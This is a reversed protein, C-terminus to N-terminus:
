VQALEHRFRPYTWLVAAAGLLVGTMIRMWFNFSGVEDAASRFVLGPLLDDAMQWVGDVLMPAACWLLARTPLAARWRIAGYLLGTPAVATYLATCRHCYCVQYGEVFFSREPLQHCAASYLSFILRGARDFGAQRLLPALWPLTAYTLAFTNLILLWHRVVARAARDLWALQPPTTSSM